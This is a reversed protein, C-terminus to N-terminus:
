EYFTQIILSGAAVATADADTSLATTGFGLGLPFLIGKESFSLIKTDNAPIAITLIPVDTGIVPATAKDYYKVYLIGATTNALIFGLLKGATAKILTSNTTAAAILRNSLSGTIAPVSTVITEKLRMASVFADESAYANGLKDLIESFKYKIQSGKYEFFHNGDKSYYRTLSENFEEVNNLDTNDQIVYQTGEKFIRKSM